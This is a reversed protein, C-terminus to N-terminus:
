QCTVLDKCHLYHLSTIISKLAKSSTNQQVLVKLREPTWEDQTSSLYKAQASSSHLIQVSCQESIM